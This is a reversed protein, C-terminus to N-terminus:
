IESWKKKVEWISSNCAHVMVHVHVNYLASSWGLAKCLFCDVLQAVDCNSEMNQAERQVQREHVPWVGLMFDILVMWQVLIM